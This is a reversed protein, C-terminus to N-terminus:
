LITGPQREPSIAPRLSWTSPAGRPTPHDSLPLLKLITVCSRLELGQATPMCSWM